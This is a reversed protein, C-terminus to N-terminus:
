GSAMGTFRPPSFIRRGSIRLVTMLIYVVPDPIAAPALGSTGASSILNPSLRQGYARSGVIENAVSIAIM